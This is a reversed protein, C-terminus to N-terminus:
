KKKGGGKGGKGGTGGDTTGGDVTMVDAAHNLIHVVMAIANPIVVQAVQTRDGHDTSSLVIGGNSYAIAGGQTLLPRIDNSSLPTFQPM